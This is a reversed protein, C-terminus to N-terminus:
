HNRRKAIKNKKKKLTKGSKRYYYYDDNNGNDYWDNEYWDDRYDNNFHDATCGFTGCFGCGQNSRNIKGWTDIVKGKRNYKIHLGGVQKLRGHRYKIYVSGVRKIRGYHDYNVYVNGVRRVRGLRDHAVYVGRSRSYNYRVGPAGYTTNIGRRKSKGNRYYSDYRYYIDTNFDFEGNPFILFEVGREVFMVPQTYRYRKNIRLDKSNDLESVIETATTSTIGLLLGILLLTIKKM